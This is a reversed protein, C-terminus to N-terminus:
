TDLKTFRNNIVRDIKDMQEPLLKLKVFKGDVKSSLRRKSVSRIMSICAYCETENDEFGDVKGIPIIADDDQIWKPVKDKKSTLPVVIATYKSEKVVVAYHPENFESGINIGFEVWFVHSRPKKNIETDHKEENQKSEHIYYNKNVHEIYWKLANIDFNEDEFDLSNLKELADNLKQFLKEYRKNIMTYWWDNTNYNGNYVLLRCFVILVYMWLSRLVFGRGM